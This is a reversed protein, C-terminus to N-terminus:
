EYFVKVGTKNIYTQFAFNSFFLLAVSLAAAYGLDFWEFGRIYLYFPMVQTATGPGGRTMTYILDFAKFAEIMRLLILTLFVQKLMPITIRFLVQPSNAGDIVAAEYVDTPLSTLGATIMLFSFPTNQWITVLVLSLFATKTSGLWEPGVIGILSL